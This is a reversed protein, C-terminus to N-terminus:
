GAIEEDERTLFREIFVGMEEVGEQVAHPNPDGPDAQKGAEYNVDPKGDEQCLFIFRGAGFIGMFRCDLCGLGRLDHDPTSECNEGEDDEMDKVECNAGIALQSGKSVFAWPFHDDYAELTGKDDDEVEYCHSEKTRVQAVADSGNKM